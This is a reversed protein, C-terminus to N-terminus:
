NYFQIKLIRIKYLLKKTIWSYVKIFMSFLYFSHISYMCFFHQSFPNVLSLTLLFINNELEIRKFTVLFILLKERCIYYFLFSLFFNFILKSLTFAGFNRKFFVLSDSYGLISDNWIIQNFHKLIQLTRWYFFYANFEGICIIKAITISKITTKCIKYNYM